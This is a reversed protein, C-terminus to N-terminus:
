GWGANDPKGPRKRNQFRAVTLAGLEGLGLGPKGHRMKGFFEWEATSSLAITQVGTIHIGM